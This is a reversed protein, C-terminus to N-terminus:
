DWPNPEFFHTEAPRDSYPDYGDDDENAARIFPSKEAPKRGQKAAHIGTLGADGVAAAAGIEASKEVLKGGNDGTSCPEVGSLNSANPDSNAGPAAEFNRLPLAQCRSPLPTTVVRVRASRTEWAKRPAEFEGEFEGNEGLFDGM